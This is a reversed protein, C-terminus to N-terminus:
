RLPPAPPLSCGTGAGCMSAPRARRASPPFMPCPPIAPKARALDILEQVSKVPLSLPVTLLLNNTATLTIPAFARQSDYPLNKLLSPNVANPGTAGILLTHGDPASKAVIEAAIRRRLASCPHGKLPHSGPSPHRARPLDLPACGSERVNM